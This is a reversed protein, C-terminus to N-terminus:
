GGIILQANIEQLLRKQKEISDYYDRIADVFIRNTELIINMNEQNFSLWIYASLFMVILILKSIKNKM